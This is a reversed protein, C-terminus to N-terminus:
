GRPVPMLQRYWGEVSGERLDFGRLVHPRQLFAGWLRLDIFDSAPRTRWEPPGFCELELCYIGDADCTFEDIGRPSLADVWQHHLAPGRVFRYVSLEGNTHSTSNDRPLRLVQDFEVAQWAYELALVDGRSLQLYWRHLHHHDSLWDAGPRAIGAVDWCDQASAFLLAAGHPVERIERAPLRAHDERHTEGEIRALLGGDADTEYRCAATDAPALPLSLADPGPVCLWVGISGAAAPAGPADQGIGLSYVGTHAIPLRTEVDTRVDFRQRTGAHCLDCPWSSALDRPEGPAHFRLVLVDGARLFLSTTTCIGSRPFRENDFPVIDDVHRRWERPTADGPTARADARLPASRPPDLTVSEVPLTATPSDGAGAGAASPRTGRARFLCDVLVSVLMVLIWIAITAPLLAWGSALCGAILLALALHVVHTGPTWPM